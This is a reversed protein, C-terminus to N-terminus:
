GRDLGPGKDWIEFVWQWKTERHYKRLAAAKGEGGRIRLLNPLHILFACSEPVPFPEEPEKGTLAKSAIGGVHINYAGIVEPHALTKGHDRSYPQVYRRKYAELPHM